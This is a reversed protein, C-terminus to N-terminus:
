FLSTRGVFGCAATMLIFVDKIVMGLVPFFAGSRDTMAPSSKHGSKAARRPHCPPRNLASRSTVIVFATGLSTSSASGRSVTVKFCSDREWPLVCRRYGVETDFAANSAFPPFRDNAATVM